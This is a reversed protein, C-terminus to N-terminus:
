CQVWMFHKVSDQGRVSLSLQGDEKESQRLM